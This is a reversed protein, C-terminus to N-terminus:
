RRRIRYFRATDDGGSRTRVVVTRTSGRTEVEGAFPRWSRPDSLDDTEEVMDGELGSWRIRWDGAGSGLDVDLDVALLPHKMAWSAELSRVWMRAFDEASRFLPSMDTANLGVNSLDQFFDPLLGYHALGDFNYDWQVLQTECRKMPANTGYIHDYDDWVTLFHQYRRLRTSDSSIESPPAEGLVRRRYVAKALKQKVNVDPDTDSGPAGNVPGLLLGRAFEKVRDRDYADHLNDTILEVEDHTLKPNKQWGWRFIRLAVFFDRQQKNYAYGKETRADEDDKDPDVARGHFVGSAGPRGERPSYAIGNRQAKIFPARWSKASEEERLGFASQPGFRPGPGVVFGNIDTGIALQQHGMFELAYMAAHAFSKSSGPNDNVVKSTSNTRPNDLASGVSKRDGNGWGLGMMGGLNRIRVLQGPVRNNENGDYRQHRFSNHGFNMPYGGEVQEALGLSTEVGLESMHDLDILIGLRMMERIAFEGLPTLGRRNRHGGQPGGEAIVVSEYDPYNGGLPLIDHPLDLSDLDGFFEFLAPAIPATGPSTAILPLTAVAAVGAMGLSSDSFSTNQGTAQSTSELILKLPAFPNFAAEALAGAIQGADPLEDTADLNPMRFKIGNDVAEVEIPRGMAHKTAISFVENYIASGGFKNDTLHVPFLYRLGMDYLAQLRQRVVERSVLDAEEKVAPNSSFNGIDDTESGIIIALKNDHIIRRLDFPSYAIELFDSHRGVFAKLEQIQRDTVALDDFPPISDVTAGAILKSHVTLAVVVRLGGDYARRVWDHWMQQHSISSFVPWKRFRAWQNGDYGGQHPNAESEGDFAALVLQRLYNGCTNDLGHGGHNCNCNSLAESVPGDPQGHFVRQGLGLHAIPHTHLDALGWVPSDWDYVHGGRFVVSPRAEGAVWVSTLSPPLPQFRFDDVNIHGTTSADVIRIRALRGEFNGVDFQERRLREEGHGTAHKEVRYWRLGMQVAGTAGPETEVLLEVRLREPDSDGGVLFTVYRETVEFPRSLLTGVSADGQETGPPTGDDPHDERTGVWHAGHHGIPYELTKWYDGGVKSTIQDALAAVRRVQVNHGRTPQTEFADGTLSWGKLGDEFDWNGEWGVPADVAEVECKPGSTVSVQFQRTSSNGSADTATCTVTHQGLGLFTGAPPDFVLKPAPDANDHAQVGAHTVVRGPQGQISFGGCRFATSRPLVIVPPTVDKVVVEFERRVLIAPGVGATCSVRTRGVAFLTGSPPDCHVWAPGGCRNTVTAAWTAVAGGTEAAEFELPGAPCALDLCEACDGTVVVPFSNTSRNGAQDAAVCLVQTTGIPFLSGSPPTCSVTAPSVADTARVDFTVPAGAPGQCANTVAGPLVLVPPQTDRVRVSFSCEAKNGLADTGIVRVVTTGLPFVTGSRPTAVVSAMRACTSEATPTFAVVAGAASTAEVTMDRPCQVTVCVRQALVSGGLFLALAM